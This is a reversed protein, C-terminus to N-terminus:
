IKERVLKRSSTSWQRKIDEVLEEKNTLPDINRVQLTARNVLAAVETKDSLAARLKVAAENVSVVRDFEILIHGARTRRVGTAAELTSRAVMIRRYVELWKCGEEVKVM